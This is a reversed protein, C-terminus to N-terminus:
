GDLAHLPTGVLAEGSYSDKQKTKKLFLFSTGIIM